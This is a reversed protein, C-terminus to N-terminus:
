CPVRRLGEAMARGASGEGPQISVGVYREDGGRIAVIRDDGTVPDRLILTTIDVELVDAVSRVISEYATM